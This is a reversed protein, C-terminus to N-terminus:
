PLITVSIRFHGGTAIANTLYQALEDRSPAAVPFRLTLSLHHSPPSISVDTPKVGTLVVAVQDAWEKIIDTDPYTPTTCLFLPLVSVGIPM